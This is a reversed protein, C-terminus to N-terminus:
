DPRREPAAPGPPAASRGDLVSSLEPLLLGVLEVPLSSTFDYRAAEPGPVYATAVGFFRDGILFVFTAARNVVRSDILRGGPAYREYRHDGTGTKGGVVLRTGDPRQLVRKLRQATGEEVVDVLARRTVAAIEPALVREGGRPDWAMVTEYPTDAAFHLRDVRVTPLRVGDNALIGMLEAMASPRDASSGIATAFSPVLTAFPYGLRRWEAGIERFAEQELLVSIRRDQARKRRTKFLWGYVEQREAVSDALVQPLTAAPHRRLYDVLWLELPHVRAIYGRDVLSFQEPSYKEFLGALKEDTVREKPLLAALLGRLTEIGAGPDTSRLVTAIRAPTLRVGSLVLDLSEKPTRGAHREYFRRLFASGEQDAFRELYARRRPADGNELLARRDGVEEFEYDDVIDRMVRIFVLNVSRRLAERVPMVRGNDDPSFNQFTHRGGGTFFREYPSASYRRDLAAELMAALSRDAAGRLYGLAWAGLRSSPQTAQARLEDSSLGSYRHHFRAVIELYTLLTRLKATSGLDMKIGENIDLPQDWTDAQVRVRNAGDAREFLTFAYVVRSPDGRDLLRPGGLGAEKVYTPDRLSHLVRTVGEQAPLDLTTEVALDLRDLDYLGPLGLEGLLRARISGVAKHELFSRRGPEATTPEPGLRARLADDRLERPIVGEEAMVRLYSDTLDELAARDQGLYYSPRRQALFLSVAQKFALAQERPDGSSGSLVRNVTAFDRGYWAWLGDGLGNVEGFGPVAALPVANVYDLIIRRRAALTEPGGQYARLSASLMQRLKDRASHTRGEPSHRFKEMQTALTSGGFVKRNGEVVSLAKSGVAKALRGWDVAPNQAPHRPDLLGRNEIFLLADVMRPPLDSFGGYVRGPFATRYFDRRGRDLVRLGAQSKERYPLFLGKQALKRLMPSLRAQSEIAYGASQLRHLFVPLQAYGLRVDYPGQNPVPQDPSPGPEPGYSLKRALSSFLRAQMRSGLMEGVLLGVLACGVLVGVLLLAHRRLWGPRGGPGSPAPITPLGM